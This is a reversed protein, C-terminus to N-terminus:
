KCTNKNTDISDLEISVNNSDVCYYKKAGPLRAFIMYTKDTTQYFLKSGTSDVSNIIQQEPRWDKYSQNHDEYYIEASARLSSIDAKIRADKARERASGLGVWVMLAFIIILLFLSGFVIGLVLILTRKSNDKESTNQEKPISNQSQATPTPPIENQNM